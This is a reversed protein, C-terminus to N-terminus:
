GRSEAMLGVIGSVFLVLGVALLWMGYVFGELAIAVGIALVIPWASQAPFRGVATGAVQRYDADPDDEPPKTAWGHFAIYGGIMLPALFMFLLFFSGAAEYSLFWYVAAVVLSFVSWYVFFKVQTRM